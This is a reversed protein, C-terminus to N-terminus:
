LSKNMNESIFKDLMTQSCKWSKGIKVAPLKNKRILVRASYASIKLMEALEKTDYFREMTATDIDRAENM